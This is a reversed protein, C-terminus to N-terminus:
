GMGGRVVFAAIPRRLGCSPPHQALTAAHRGHPRPACPVLAFGPCVVACLERLKRGSLLVRAPDSADKRHIRRRGRASARGRRVEDSRETQQPEGANHQPDRDDCYRRHDRQHMVVQVHGLRLDADRALEAARQRARESLDGEALAQLRWAIRRILWTKNTAHTTEGFLETFRRRLEAATMRRLAAVEAGIHLTM